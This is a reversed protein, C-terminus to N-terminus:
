VMKTQRFFRPPLPRPSVSLYLASTLLLASPFFPQFLTSVVFISKPKSFLPPVNFNSHVVVSVFFSLCSLFAPAFFPHPALFFLPSPSALPGLLGRKSGFGYPGLMSTFQNSFRHAHLAFKSPPCPCDTDRPPYAQRPARRDPRPQPSFHRKYSAINQFSLLDSRQATSPRPSDDVHTVTPVLEDCCCCM